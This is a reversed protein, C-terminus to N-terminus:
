MSKDKKLINSRHTLNSCSVHEKQKLSLMRGELRCCLPSFICSFNVAPFYHPGCPLQEGRSREELERNGVKQWRRRESWRTASMGTMHEPSCSRAQLTRVETSHKKKQRDRDCTWVNVNINKKQGYRELFTWRDSQWMGRMDVNLTDCKLFYNCSFIVAVHLTM